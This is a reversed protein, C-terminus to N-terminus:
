ITVENVVYAEPLADRRRRQTDIVDGVRIEDVSTVFEGVSSAVAVTPMAPDANFANFFLAMRLGIADRTATLLRGAIGVQDAGPAPFYMRGRGRAGPIPTRLSVVVACQPPLSNVSDGYEPTSLQAEGTGTVVGADDFSQARSSDLSTGNPMAAKIAVSGWVQEEFLTLATLAVDDMSPTSGIVPQTSFGMSWVESGESLTGRLEVRCHAITV